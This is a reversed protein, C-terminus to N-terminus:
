DIVEDALALLTPPVVIGLAKATKIVLRRRARWPSRQEAGAPRRPNNAHVKDHPPPGFGHQVLQASLYGGGASLYVILAALWRQM